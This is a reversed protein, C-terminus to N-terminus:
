PCGEFTVGANRVSNFYREKSGKCIHLRLQCFISLSREFKYYVNTSQGITNKWYHTYSTYLPENRGKRNIDIVGKASFTLSSDEPPWEDWVSQFHEGALESEFFKGLECPTLLGDADTAPRTNTIVRDPDKEESSSTAAEGGEEEEAAKNPDSIPISSDLSVHVVRSANVTLEQQPLLENGAQAWQQPQYLSGYTTATIGAGTLKTM